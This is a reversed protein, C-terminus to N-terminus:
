NERMGEVLGRSKDFGNLAFLSPSEMYSGASMALRCSLGIYHM